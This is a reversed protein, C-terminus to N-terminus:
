KSSKNAGLFYGIVAGIVVGILISTIDISFGKPTTNTPVQALIATSFAFISALTFMTKKM